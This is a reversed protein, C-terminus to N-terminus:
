VSYLALSSKGYVKELNDAPGVEDRMSVLDCVKNFDLASLLQTCAQNSEPVDILIPRSSVSAILHELLLKAVDSSIAYLPGIRCGTNEGASPSVRDSIVGYGLVENDNVVMFTSTGPKFIWDYLFNKREYGSIQKDFHAIREFDSVKIERINQVATPICPTEAVYAWVQDTGVVTFGTKGYFDTDKPLADLGLTYGEEKLPAAITDWLIRGFGKGRFPKRVIYLSIFAIKTDLCRVASLSAIPKDNLFLLFYGQLDAKYCAEASYQTPRWGEDVAWTSYVYALDDVDMTTINIEGAEHKINRILNEKKFVPAAHAHEPPLGGGLLKKESQKTMDM